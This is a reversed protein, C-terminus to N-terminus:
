RENPKNRSQKIIDLIHNTHTEAMLKTDMMFRNVFMRSLEGIRHRFDRDVALQVAINVYSAFDEAIPLLINGSEDLWTHKIDEQLNKPVQNSRFAPLINTLSSSELSEPTIRVIVPCGAAMSEFATHGSAFPFSDLFVDLVQAYLATNVWGIFRCRDLIGLERFRSSIEPHNIRGTWIYISNPVQTLIQAVAEAYEDSNIKAERGLCGFIICDKGNKLERRKIEANGKFELKYLPDLAGHGARWKKGNIIRYQEFSGITLYGDIEDFEVSHYKMSWHIQVPAIRMSFALAITRLNCVGVLTSIEIEM